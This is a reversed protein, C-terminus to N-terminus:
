SLTLVFETSVCDLACVTGTLFFNVISRNKFKKKFGESESILITSNESLFTVPM